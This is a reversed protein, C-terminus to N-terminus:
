RIEAVLKSASLRLMERSLHLCPLKPSIPRLFTSKSEKCKICCERLAQETGPLHTLHSARKHCGGGIPSISGGEAGTPYLLGGLVSCGGCVSNEGPGSPLASHRVPSDGGAVM